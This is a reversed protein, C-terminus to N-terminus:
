RPYTISARPQRSGISPHTARASTLNLPRGTIRSFSLWVREHGVLSCAMRAARSRACYRISQRSTGVAGYPRTPQRGGPQALYHGGRHRAASTRLGFVRRLQGSRHWIRNILPACDHQRFCAVNDMAHAVPLSCIPALLEPLLSRRAGIHMVILTPVTFDAPLSSLLTRLADLGGLSTGVAVIRNKNHPYSDVVQRRYDKSGAKTPEQTGTHPPQDNRDVHITLLRYAQSRPM